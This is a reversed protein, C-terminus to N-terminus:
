IGIGMGALVANAVRIGEEDGDERCGQYRRACHEGTVQSNGRPVAAYRRATHYQSVTPYSYSLPLKPDVPPM